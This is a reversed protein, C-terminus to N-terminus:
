FRYHVGVELVRGFGDGPYDANTLLMVIDADHFDRRPKAEVALDMVDQVINDTEDFDLLEVAVLQIRLENFDINSNQFARNTQFVAM